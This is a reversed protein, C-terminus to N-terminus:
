ILITSGDPSADLLFTVAGVIEVSIDDRLEDVSIGKAQLGMECVTFRAGLAACSELLEDFTAVKREAFDRDTEAASVGDEGPGLAHWGPTGDPEPKLLARVGGMTFFLTVPINVAVGSAALVLAYHVREFDGSFVVISLKDPGTDDATAM